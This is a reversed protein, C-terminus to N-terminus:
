DEKIKEVKISQARLKKSTSNMDSLEADGEKRKSFPTSVDSSSEINYDILRVEGTSLTSSNTEILSVPESLSEIRHIHDGSWVESVKFTDSGNAVNDNAISIGFCFSKGVCNKIPIPLINPDEIEAYSGDWLTDAKEGIITKAVTDLLMLQCSGTDDKVFLHLKYKPSVDTTNARCVDCYFVPKESEVMKGGGKRGVRTTRRNHRNCGFYFWGWDTDIAEITCVIKCSEAEVALYIESICKIDVENWDDVVQKIVKNEDSSGLLALPLDTQSMKQRFDIAEEMIPNLMLVSSDFANTIQVEGRFNSIKAFRILCVIPEDKSEEVHSEIQEAYPGWLCCVLENGSTDRLRFNVRKRNEGTKLQCIAVEGLDVVQGMVDILFFTKLKGTVIEEYSALSLFQNEDRYDTPKIKTDGIVTLKYQFKSPRYQGGAASIKFNELERWEGLTEDAFICELSEGGYDTKTKWTHLLKLRIRWEEKFPKLDNILVM